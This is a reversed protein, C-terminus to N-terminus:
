QCGHEQRHTEVAARREEVEARALETAAKLTEYREKPVTGVNLQLEIVSNMYAVTSHRWEDLLHAM